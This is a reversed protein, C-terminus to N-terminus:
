ASVARSARHAEAVNRAAEKNRTPLGIHERCESCWTRFLTGGPNVALVIPRHEPQEAALRKIERLYDMEADSADAHYSPM